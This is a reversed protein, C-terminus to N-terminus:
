KEDSAPLASRAIDVLADREAHGLCPNCGCNNQSAIEELAERLRGREADLAEVADAIEMIERYRCGGDHMHVDPSKTLCTCSGIGLLAIRDALLTEHRTTPADPPGDIWPPDFTM